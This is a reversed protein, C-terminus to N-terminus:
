RSHINSLTVESIGIYSALFKRPVRQLIDPENKLLYEYRKKAKLSRISMARRESKQYYSTILKRGNINFSVFRQYIDELENYTLYYVATEELAQISETSIIQDFFSNVSIAIDGEKMFWASIDKNDETYYCRVLGKEIFFIHRSIHGKKLLYTGKKFTKYQLIALLHNQLEDPIVHIKNLFTM